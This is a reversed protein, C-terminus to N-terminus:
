STYGKSSCRLLELMEVNDDILLTGILNNLTHFQPYVKEKLDPRKEIISYLGNRTKYLNKMIELYCDKDKFFMKLSEIKEDSLYTEKKM